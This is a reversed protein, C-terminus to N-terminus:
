KETTEGIVFPSRLDKLPLGHIDDAFDGMAEMILLDLKKGLKAIRTPSRARSFRM